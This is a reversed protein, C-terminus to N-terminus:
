LKIIGQFNNMFKRIATENLPREDNFIIVIYRNHIYTQIGVPSILLIKKFLIDKKEGYLMRETM